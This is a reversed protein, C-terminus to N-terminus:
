AGGEFTVFLIINNLDRDSNRKNVRGCKLHSTDHSKIITLFFINTERQFKYNLRKKLSTYKEQNLDNVM